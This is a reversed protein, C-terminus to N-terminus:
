NATLSVTSDPSVYLDLKESKDYRMRRYFHYQVVEAASMGLGSAQMQRYGARMSSIQASVGKSNATETIVAARRAANAQIDRVQTNYKSRIVQIEGELEDIKQQERATEAQRKQIQQNELSTEFQQDLQIDTIILAIVEAFNEKFVKNVSDAMVSTIEEKKTFFDNNFYNEPVIQIANKAMLIYDKHYRKTPWKKYIEAAYEERIRYLIAIDMYIESPNKTKAQIKLSDGDEDAFIIWKWKTEFDIFKASLGVYYKGPM